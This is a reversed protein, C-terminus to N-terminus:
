TLLLYKQVYANWYDLTPYKNWEEFCDLMTIKQSNEAVKQISKVILAKQEPNLKYNFNEEMTKIVLEM